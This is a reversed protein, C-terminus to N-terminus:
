SLTSISQVRKIGYVGLRLTDINSMSMVEGLLLGPSWGYGSTVLGFFVYDGHRDLRAFIREINCEQPRQRTTLTIFPRAMASPLTCRAKYSHLKFKSEISNLLVSKIKNVRIEM